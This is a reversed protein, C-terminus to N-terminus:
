PETKEREEVLFEEWEEWTVGYPTGGSTHGAVFAFSADPETQFGQGEPPNGRTRLGAGASLTRRIAAQQEAPVEVGLLRFERIACQADVGFRRRYGKLINKGRYRSVWGTSRAHALRAKRGMRKWRPPSSSRRKRTM